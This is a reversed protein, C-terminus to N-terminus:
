ESKLKKQLGYAMKQIEEIKSILLNATNNDIMLLNKAIIIQTMLEFVSGNAIGLFQIFEQKNNRGAGEAINSPISVAARKMQPILGYKENQPLESSVRYLEITLDIAKNWVTLEKLNHMNHSIISLLFSISSSLYSILIHM